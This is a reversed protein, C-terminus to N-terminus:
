RSRRTSGRGRSSRRPQRRACPVPAASGIVIRVDKAAGGQERWAVAADALPWDFAQKQKIKRYASRLGQPKEVHIEVVLEGAQAREGHLDRGRATRLLGRRRAHPRRGRRTDRHPCELRRARRRCGLPPSRARTTGSSRTSSTRGPSRSASSAARRSASSSPRGSIGAGRASASTAPSHRQTASRRRRRARAPTRSPRSTRACARRWPTLTVLAGISIAGSSKRQISSHATLRRLDVVQDPALNYEKLRDLLETGAGKVESSIKRERATALLLAAEDWSKPQLREFSKVGEGGAESSERPSRSDEGAHDPARDAPHGDRPRDRERGRGGDAGDCARRHRACARQEQRPLPRRPPPRNGAHGQERPDQLVRREPEPRARLARGRHTRRLARLQHGAPHRRSDPERRRDELGAPRLRARCRSEQRAVVGTEVDVVVEAFQAGFLRTDTGDYDKARDGTAVLTEGPLRSCVKRFEASRGQASFVGGALRVESEPAALVASAAAILKERAHVAAARVAPILSGTTVSGGSAPGFPYRSDGIKVRIKEVPLGIEEAVVMAIPTRVGGGIDQVGNEVEVTGDRHIRVLVQSGPAVFTYWLSAACGLGRRLPSGAAAAAANAKSIGARRSWGIEKAGTEWELRRVESPDNKLRLALPDMGLKDALAELATEVAFCGQPHGPARMACGPGLHTFVDSEAVRVAPFGYASKVFGGTGTGTAVGATGFSEYDAATVTGDKRYGLKVRNWSDPRNGSSLQDEKRDLAMLVPKGAKKALKATLVGYDRAGFKSGFGGGTFEARVVVKDKSLKFVEALEDRVSFTGQTSAQVELTDGVWEAFMSHTEMCTHTQVSTTTVVELTGEAEAFGKDVDGKGSAKPGRVNGTQPLMAAAGPEDGASRKEEVPKQFVLPAGDARAAALSVTHPLVDYRGQRRPDRGRRRREDPRRARHHSRRPLPRRGEESERHRRGAIKELVPTDISVIKAHAHPSRLIRAHLMGPRRADHTYVARGTVKQPGDLRPRRRGTVPRAGMPYPPPDGPPVSISIKQSPNPPALGIEVTLANVGAGPAKESTKEKKEEAM